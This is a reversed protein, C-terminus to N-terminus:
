ILNEPIAAAEKLLYASFTKVAPSQYKSDDWILYSTTVPAQTLPITRTNTRFPLRNHFSIQNPM